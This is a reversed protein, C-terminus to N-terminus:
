HNKTVWAKALFSGKMGRMAGQAAERVVATNSQGKVAANVIFPQVYFLIHFGLSRTQNEANSAM